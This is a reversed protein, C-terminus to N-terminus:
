ITPRTITGNATGGQKLKALQEKVGKIEEHLAEIESTKAYTSLDIPESPKTHEQPQKEVLSYEKIQFQGKSDLTKIYGIDKDNHKYFVSTNPMQYRQVVDEYGSVFIMNTTPPTQQQPYQSSYGFPQTATPLSNGFNNNFWNMNINCDGKIM